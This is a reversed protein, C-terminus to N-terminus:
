IAFRQTISWGLMYDDVGLPVPRKKTDAYASWPNRVIHLFHAKPLEDLIRQADVTIIPSYGVYVQERGTSRHDKWAEFTARFFAWMNNARTRGTREVHGVYLQRREDDSFDFPV